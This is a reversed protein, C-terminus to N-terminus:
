RQVRIKDYTLTPILFSLTKTGVGSWQTSELLSGNYFVLSSAKLEFTLNSPPVTPLSPLTGGDSSITCELYESVAKDAAINLKFLYPTLGRAELTLNQETAPIEFPSNYDWAGSVDPAFMYIQTQYGNSTDDDDDWVVFLMGRKIFQVDTNLMAQHTDVQMCGGYLNNVDILGWSDNPVFMNPVKLQAEASLFSFIFTLIIASKIVLIRIVKYWRLIAKETELVLRKYIQNM